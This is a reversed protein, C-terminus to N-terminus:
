AWRMQAAIHSEGRPQKRAYSPIAGRKQEISIRIPLERLLRAHAPGSDQLESWRVEGAEVQLVMSAYNGAHPHRCVFVLSVPKGEVFRHFRFWSSMPVKRVLTEEIDAIDVVIVTFGGTNLLIDTVRFAQELVRIKKRNPSHKRVAHEATCRVWLLNELVTGAASAFTPCFTDSADVLACLKGARTTNAILGHCVSTTGASGRGCIETLGGLPLGSILQDISAFGTALRPAAERARVSLASPIKPALQAEVLARIAAASSM